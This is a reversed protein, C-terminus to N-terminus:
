GGSKPQGVGPDSAQGDGQRERGDTGDDLSGGPTSEHGDELAGSQEHEDVAQQEAQADGQGSAAPEDWDEATRSREIRDNMRGFIRSLGASAQDRTRDLLIFSIIGSIVLAVAIALLGRMPTILQILLWVAALLALRLGTYIAIGRM